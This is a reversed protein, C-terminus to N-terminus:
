IARMILWIILVIVGLDFLIIGWKWLINSTTDGKIGFVEKRVRGYPTTIWMHHKCPTLKPNPNISKKFLKKHLYTWM